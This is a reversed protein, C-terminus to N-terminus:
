VAFNSLYKKIWEDYTRTSEREKPDYRSWTIQYKFGIKSDELVAQEIDLDQVEQIRPSGKGDLSLFNRKLCAVELKQNLFAVESLDKKNLASWIREHVEKPFKIEYDWIWRLGNEMPCIDHFKNLCSEDFERWLYQFSGLPWKMIDGAFFCPKGDSDLIGFYPVGNNFYKWGQERFIWGPATMHGIGFWIGKENSLKWKPALSHRDPLSEEELANRLSCVNEYLGKNAKSVSEEMSSDEQRLDIESIKQALNEVQQKEM